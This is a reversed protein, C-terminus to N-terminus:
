RRAALRAFAHDLGAGLEASDASAAGPLARVVTGSGPPLAILRQAVQARLRRTVRHRQVSGGVSKAVVFGVLPSGNALGARQHVILPGGRTREGDRVVVAFDRSRRM